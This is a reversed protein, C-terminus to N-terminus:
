AAPRPRFLSPSVARGLPRKAWHAVARDDDSLYAARVQLVAELGQDIWFKETGKVRVNIQKILSEVPASSIPLGERRYRAYDVKDKNKEVYDITQALIKRPDDDPCKDPPAGLRCAQKRLEELVQAVKGAWAHRMLKVYLDWAKDPTGKYAAQAAAYLHTLLHVIDLIPVFGVLFTAVIGWIWLSGDGLAGKKKAGFFGRVRAEAAVMPGFKECGQPTAVVTRVKRQPGTNKASPERARPRAAKLPKRKKKEPPAKGSYGKMEQVLRAVENRDLFKAPPEPQPDVTFSVETYTALNAVKTETWSAEHVGRGADSTRIQARGGDLQVVAVAPAEHYRPELEGKEFAEVDADRLAAREGGLKRVIKELGQPTIEIELMKRIAASGKTYSEQNGGAWEFRELLWPSYGETRLNLKLDAPFFFDGAPSATTGTASSRCPAQGRTSM